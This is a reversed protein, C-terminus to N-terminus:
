KIEKEFADLNEELAKIAKLLIDKASMNGYSEIIFLMENSDAVAAKDITRIDEIEAGELDCLWKSGKKVAKIAGKSKEVIADIKPASSVELIHRYYCLGPIYKAHELGKGLTETAVLELKHEEGLITLPIKDHVLEADGEFDGSYVTCPGKKVLKLEIKTKDNMDKTTKFPVLGIRHALVEDYLASDNKFMEVEDIALVKIEPISRRIANFLPENAEMRVILKENTEQIVDM